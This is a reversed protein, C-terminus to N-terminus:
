YSAMVRQTKQSCSNRLFFMAVSANNITGV